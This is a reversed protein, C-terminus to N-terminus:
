DQCNAARAVVRIVKNEYECVRAPTSMHSTSAMVHALIIDVSGHFTANFAAPLDNDVNWALQYGQRNLWLELASRLNGSQPTIRFTLSEAKEAEIVKAPDIVSKGPGATMQAVSKSQPSHAPDSAAFASSAIGCVALTLAARKLFHKNM